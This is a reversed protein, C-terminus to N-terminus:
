CWTSALRLASWVIMKKGSKQRQRSPHYASPRFGTKVSARVVARVAVSEAPTPRPIETVTKPNTEEYPRRHDQPGTELSRGVVGEGIREELMLWHMRMVTVQDVQDRGADWEEGRGNAIREACEVETGEREGNTVRM